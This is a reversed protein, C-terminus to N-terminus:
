IIKLYRQARNPILRPNVANHTRRKELHQLDKVIPMTAAM